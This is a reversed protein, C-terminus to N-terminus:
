VFWFIDNNISCVCYNLWDPINYLFRHKKFVLCFQTKCLICFFLINCLFICIKFIVYAYTYKVYQMLIQTIYLKCAHLFLLIHKKYLLCFSTDDYFLVHMFKYSYKVSNHTNKRLKCMLIHKKFLPWIVKM